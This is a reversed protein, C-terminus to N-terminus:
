FLLFFFNALFTSFFFLPPKWINLLHNGMRKGVTVPLQDKLSPSSIGKVIKYIFALKHM